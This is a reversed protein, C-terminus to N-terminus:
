PRSPAKIIIRRSNKTLSKQLFLGYQVKVDFLTFELKTFDINAEKLWQFREESTNYFCYTGIQIKSRDIRPGCKEETHYLRTLSNRAEDLKEYNTVLAKESEPLNTYDVFIEEIPWENKLSIDGINNIREDIAEATLIKPEVETSCSIVSFSRLNKLALKPLAFSNAVRIGTIPASGKIINKYEGIKFSLKGRKKFYFFMLM